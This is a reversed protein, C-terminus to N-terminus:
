RQEKYALINRVWCLRVTTRVTDDAPELYFHLVQRPNSTDLNWSSTNCEHTCGRIVTYVHVRLLVSRDFAHDASMLILLIANIDM